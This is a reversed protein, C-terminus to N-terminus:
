RRRQQRVPRRLPDRKAAMLDEVLTMLDQSRMSSKSLFRDAGCAFAAQRYEPDDHQTLIAITVAPHAAHVLSALTLGNRGPLGIDALLLDPVQSEVQRLAEECSGAEVLDIERFRMRLVDCIARRLGASDDVILVRYM